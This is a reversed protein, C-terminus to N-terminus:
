LMGKLTTLLTSVTEANAPDARLLTAASNVIALAAPNEQLMLAASDLLTASLDPNTGLMLIAQDIILVVPNSAADAPQQAAPQETAPEQTAPEQTAPQETSVAPEGPAQAPIAASASEVAGYSIEYVIYPDKYTKQTLLYRGSGSVSLTDYEAPLIEEGHWDIMGYDYNANTTRYYIGGTYDLASVREYGELMTEVGDAALININGAMDTFLASAGNNDLNTSAYKPPCTEGNALSYYGLKNNNEVCVYGFVSYAYGGSGEGAVGPAYYCYRVRDYEAPIVVTGTLDALGYKDGTSVTFYGGYVDDDVYRYAPNMVINGDPDMLGQQGNSSFTSYHAAFSNDSTYRVTGLANFQSDYCTVTGTARDEINLVDGYARCGNYNTRPVSGALRGEPLWYFDVTSILYYDTDNSYSRYDYNDATAKVLNICATWCASLIDIDGYQFPTIEVGDKSVIGEGANEKSAVIWGKEYDFSSTYLYDTILTGDARAVAYGNRSEVRLLDSNYIWYASDLQAIQTLTGDAFAPFACLCLALTLILATLKKM